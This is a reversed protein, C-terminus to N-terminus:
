PVVYERVHEVFVRLWRMEAVGLLGCMCWGCVGWAEARAM